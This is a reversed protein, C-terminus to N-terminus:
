GLADGVKVLPTLLSRLTDDGPKDDYPIGECKDGSRYGTCVTGLLDGAYRQLVKSTFEVTDESCGSEVAKKVCTEFKNYKCCAGGIRSRGPLRSAVDLDATLSKMCAQFGSGVKNLCPAHTIYEKHYDSSTDCRESIEEKIDDLFVSGVGQAVSSTCKKLYVRSCAEAEEQAKCFAALDAESEPITNKTAFVFLDSSCTDLKHIDCDEETPAASGYALVAIFLIASFERKRYM